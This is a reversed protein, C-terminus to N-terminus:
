DIFYTKPIFEAMSCTWKEEVICVYSNGVFLPTVSVHNLFHVFPCDTKNCIGIASILAQIRAYIKAILPGFIPGARMDTVGIGVTIFPGPCNLIKNRETSLTNLIKKLESSKVHKINEKSIKRSDIKKNTKM